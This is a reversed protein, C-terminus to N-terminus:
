KTVKVNKIEWTGAKEATSTYHFGIEVKKGAFSSIDIAGTNVFDWSLKDPYTPVTLTTWDSSGTERINVTAETKAVDISSFFNFAQEFSLFASTQGALDIEPSVLWSDAAFDSTKFGTAVMGYSSSFTWVATLGEPLLVNQITFNGIGSTFPESFLLDPDEPTEVVPNGTPQVSVNKIQWTGAKEATSVYHFGIEVKKGVYASLDIDGSNVFTWSMSTPYAPVSLTTWDSSGAERINVTAQTKAVDLNSFFNLAQDFNLFATTQDTLDIEPSILWSDSAFDGSNYATAVMGYKSNYTWVASLGEPLNENQITFDGIGSTFSESFIADESAGPTEVFEFDGGCASEPDMVTLQWTGNYYGLIATLSGTGKPLIDSAFTCKDSTRVQIQNGAADQLYRTTTKGEGKTDCWALEGGGVFSVDDFKVLQCQWYILKEKDNKWANLDTLTVTYPEADAATPLGNRQARVLFENKDMGGLSTAGTNANTYWVGIQMQTGYGGVLLGTVNIRVEQGIHYSEYLDYGYIRFDIAASEDRVYIHQYVNGDKDSSIVRGAIIISDGNANVPITEPTNNQAANWFLEKFEAISTNAEYTAVPVIVPPRDLDDDCSVFAGSTAAVALVAFISKYLKM